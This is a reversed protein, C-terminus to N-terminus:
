LRLGPPRQGTRPVQQVILALVDAMRSKLDYDAVRWVPAPQSPIGTLSRVYSRCDSTSRGGNIFIEEHIDYKTAFTVSESTIGVDADLGNLWQGVPLIWDLLFSGPTLEWALAVANTLGLRKWSHVSPNLTYTVTYRCEVKGLRGRTAMGWSTQWSSSDQQVQAGKGTTRSVRPHAGSRYFEILVADLDSLLPRVAYRWQLWRDAVRKYVPKRRRGHMDYSRYYESLGLLDGKRALRYTALLDKTADHFFKLTQGFEGFTTAANWVQDKLHLRLKSAAEDRAALATKSYSAPSANVSGVLNIPRAGLTGAAFMGRRNSVTERSYNTMSSAAALNSPRARKQVSSYSSEDWERYPSTIVLDGASFQLFPGEKFTFWPM